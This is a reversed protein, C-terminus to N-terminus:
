NVCTVADVGPTTPDWIASASYTDSVTQMASLLPEEFYDRLAASPRMQGGNRTGGFALIARCGIGNVTICQSADVCRLYRYMERWDDHNRADTGGILLTAADPLGGLQRDGDASTAASDPAPLEGAALANQIAVVAVSERQALFGTFHASRLLPRFVEDSTIWVVADNNAADAFQGETVTVPTSVPNAALSEVFGAVEATADSGGRCAHDDNARQIGALPGHPAIVVAVARPGSGGTLANGAHGVLDFQGPTDWNLPQNSDPNNKRRGAVVYWLCDGDGDRLQPVAITRFPLRGIALEDSSGCNLESSGDNDDDPCPMLGIRPNGTHDPDLDYTMAYAILAQRAEVLAQRTADVQAQRIRQGLGSVDVGWLMTAAFLSILMLPLVYGSQQKM